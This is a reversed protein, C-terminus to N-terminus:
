GKGGGKGTSTASMNKGEEGDRPDPYGDDVSPDAGAGGDGTVQNAANGTPPEDSRDDDM